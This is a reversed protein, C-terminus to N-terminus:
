QTKKYIISPDFPSPQNPLFSSQTSKSGCTRKRARMRGRRIQITRLRGGVSPRYRRWDESEESQGTGKLAWHCAHDPGPVDQIAEQDDRHQRWSERGRPEALTGWSGGWPLRFVFCLFLRSGGPLGGLSSEPSFLFLSLSLPPWNVSLSLSLIRTKTREKM